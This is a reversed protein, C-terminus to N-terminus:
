PKRILYITSKPEGAHRSVEDTSEVEVRGFLAELQNHFGDNPGPSWFALVGGSRVRDLCTKLTEDRYLRRNSETALWGPGNDVDLLMMDCTTAPDTVVDFLDAVRVTVRPDDIADSNVESFYRRNWEVVKSSVEVVTVSEIGALELTSRLTHGAGLGGILVHLRAHPRAVRTLALRAMECESSSGLSAMLFNGNILIEFGHEGTQATYRRLEVRGIPTEESDVSEYTIEVPSPYRPFVFPCTPLSRSLSLPLSLPPPLAAARHLSFGGLLSSPPREM